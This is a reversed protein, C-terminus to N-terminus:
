NEFLFMTLRRCLVFDSWLGDEPGYIAGSTQHSIEWEEFFVKKKWIWDREVSGCKEKLGVDAETRWFDSHALVGSFFESKEVGLSPKLVLFQVRSRHSLEWKEWIGTEKLELEECEFIATCLSWRFFANRELKFSLKPVLSQVRHRHSFEREEYIDGEELNLGEWGFWVEGETGCRGWDSWFRLAGLGGFFYMDRLELLETQPGFIAGSASTLGGM